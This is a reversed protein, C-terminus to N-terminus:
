ITPCRLRLSRRRRYMITRRLPRAVTPAFPANIFQGSVDKSPVPRYILYPGIEFDQVFLENWPGVDGFHALLSYITGGPWRNLGVPSLFGGQVLAQVTLTQAPSSSGDGAAQMNQLFPTVIKDNVTEAFQAPTRTADANIGYTTFFQFASLLAAEPTYGSYPAYRIINLIKGYDGGTISVVRQPGSETMRQSRSVRTVFGRMVIPM